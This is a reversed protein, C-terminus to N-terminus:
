LCLWWFFFECSSAYLFFFSNLFRPWYQLLFVVVIFFQIVSQSASPSFSYIFHITSQNLENTTQNQSTLTSYPQHYMQKLETLSKSFSYCDCCCCRYCYCYFSVLMWGDDGDSAGVDEVSFHPLLLLLM